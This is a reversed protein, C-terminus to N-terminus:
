GIRYPSEALETRGALQQSLVRQNIGTADTRVKM